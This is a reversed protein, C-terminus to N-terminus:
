IKVISKTLYIPTPRRLTRLESAILAAQERLEPVAISEWRQGMLSSGIAYLGDAVRLQADAAFGLGTHHPRCVGGSAVLGRLLEDGSKEFNLTTGTCDIAAACAMERRGSDRLNARVEVRDGTMIAAILEGAVVRLSGAALEAHITRAVEPPMRHRLVSWTSQWRSVAERQDSATFRQWISASHPRLADFSSRWDREGAIAERIFSVVAELTSLRAVEDASLDIAGVGRHHAVPMRGSRSIAIIEGAYGLGRLTLVSDVATLGSGILAVPEARDAIGDSTLGWPGHHLHPHRADGFASRLVHGTALVCRRATVRGNTTAITWGEAGHALGIARARHFEVDIGNAEAERLCITRLDALYRGYLRRPAFDTLGPVEVGLDCCAALGAPSSVWRAFEGPDDALAGMRDSQVNLLHRVDPTDYAVGLGRDDDTIVTVTRAGEFRVLNVLTALGSFGFGVIAVDAGVSSM